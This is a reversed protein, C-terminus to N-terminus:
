RPTSDTDQQLPPTSSHPWRVSGERSSKRAAKSEVLPPRRPHHGRHQGPPKAYPIHYFKNVGEESVGVLTGKSTEVTLAGLCQDTICADFVGDCATIFFITLGLLLKQKM